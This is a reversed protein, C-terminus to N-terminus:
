FINLVVFFILQAVIVMLSLKKLGNLDEQQIITQVIIAVILWGIYNMIPVSGNEWSWYDYTIAVPEILFDLMVMLSAALLVSIIKNRTIYHTTFAAFAFGLQLWNFGIIWPVELVKPGLTQGYHYSGFLFGYRVGVIEALLGIFFVLAPVWLRRLNGWYQFYVILSGAILLNLPTMALFYPNLAPTLYGVVGVSHLILLVIGAKTDNPLKQAQKLYTIM